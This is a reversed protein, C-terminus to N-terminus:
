CAKSHFTSEILVSITDRGVVPDVIFCFSRLDTERAGVKTGQPGKRLRSGEVIAMQHGVLRVRLEPDAKSITFASKSGQKASVTLGM